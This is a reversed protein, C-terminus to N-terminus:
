GTKEVVALNLEELGVDELQEFGRLSMLTGEHIGSANVSCKSHPQTVTVMVPGLIKCHVFRTRIFRVVLYFFSNALQQEFISHSLFDWLNLGIPACTKGVRPDIPM